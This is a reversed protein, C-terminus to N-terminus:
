IQIVKSKNTKKCLVKENQCLNQEGARCWFAQGSLTVDLIVSLSKRELLHKILRGTCCWVAAVAASGQSVTVTIHGKVATPTFRM